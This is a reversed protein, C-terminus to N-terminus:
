KPKFYFYYLSFPIATSVLSHFHLILISDLDSLNLAFMTMNVIGTSLNAILFVLLGIFKSDVTEVFQFASELLYILNIVRQRIDVTSMSKAHNKKLLYSFFKAIFIASLLNLLWLLTGTMM